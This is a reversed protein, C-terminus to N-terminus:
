TKPPDKQGVRYVDTLCLLFYPTYYEGLKYFFVSLLFYFYCFKFFLFYIFSFTFVM